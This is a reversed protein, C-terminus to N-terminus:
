LEFQSYDILKFIHFDLFIYKRMKTGRHSTEQVLSVLIIQAARYIADPPQEWDRGPEGPPLDHESHVSTCFRNMKNQLQRSAAKHCCTLAPLIWGAYHLLDALIRQLPLPENGHNLETTGM